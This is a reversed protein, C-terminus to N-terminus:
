IIGHLPAGREGFRDVRREVEADKVLVPAHHPKMRADIIIPGRCGWHKHEIFSDVGYV